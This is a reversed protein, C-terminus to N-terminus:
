YVQHEPMEAIEPRECEDVDEDLVTVEIDRGDSYVAQVLGGSIVIVIREM